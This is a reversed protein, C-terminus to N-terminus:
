GWVLLEPPTAKVGTIYQVFVFRDNWSKIHGQEADKHNANKQAHSPIYTVKSGIHEDSIITNEIKM